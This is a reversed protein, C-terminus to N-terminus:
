RRSSRNDTTESEEHKETTFAACEIKSGDTNPCSVDFLGCNRCHRKKPVEVCISPIKQQTKLDELLKIADVLDNSYTISQILASGGKGRMNNEQWTITTVMWELTTIIRQISASNDRALDVGVQIKQEPNTQNTSRSSSNDNM